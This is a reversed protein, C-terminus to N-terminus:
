RSPFAIEPFSLLSILKERIKMRIWGPYGKGDFPTNVLIMGPADSPHLFYPHSNDITIKNDQQTTTNPTSKSSETPSNSMMFDEAEQITAGMHFPFGSVRFEPQQFMDDGNFISTADSGSQTSTEWSGSESHQVMYSSINGGLMLLTAQPNTGPSMTFTSGDIVRLAGFLILNRDVVKGVLCSHFQTAERKQEKDPEQWYSPLLNGMSYLPLLATPNYFHLRSLSPSALPPFPSAGIVWNLSPSTAEYGMGLKPEGFASYVPAVSQNLTSTFRFSLLFLNMKLHSNVSKLKSSWYPKIAEIWHLTPSFSIFLSSPAGESLLQHRGEITGLIPLERRKATMSPSGCEEIYSRYSSCSLQVPTSLFFYLADVIATSLIPSDISDKAVKSLSVDLVLALVVHAM